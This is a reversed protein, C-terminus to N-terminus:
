LSAHVEITMTQKHKSMIILWLFFLIMLPPWHLLLTRTLSQVSLSNPLHLTPNPIAAKYSQVWIQLNDDRLPTRFKYISGRLGWGLCCKVDGRIFSLSSLLTESRVLFSIELLKGGYGLFDMDSTLRKRSFILTGWIATLKRLPLRRLCQCPWSYFENRKHWLRHTRLIQREISIWLLM